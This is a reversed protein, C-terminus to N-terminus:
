PNLRWIGWNLYTAFLCWFCYPILLLASLPNALMFLWMVAALTVDMFLLDILAPLILKKGFFISTWSFGAMFHVILILLTPLFLPKAPTFFYLALSIFILLYLSAWAPWFVKNPPTLPPKALSDYWSPM